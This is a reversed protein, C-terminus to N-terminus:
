KVTGEAPIVKSEPASIVLKSGGSNRSGTYLDYAAFGLAVVGVAGMCICANRRFKRDRERREKREKEAREEREKREKRANVECDMRFHLEAMKYEHENKLELERVACENQSLERSDPFVKHVHTESKEKLIMPRNANGPDGVKVEVTQNHPQNTTEQKKEQKPQQNNQKGGGAAAAVKSLNKVIEIGNNITQSDVNLGM